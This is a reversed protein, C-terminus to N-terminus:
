NNILQYSNKNSEIWTRVSELAAEYSNVNLEGTPSLGVPFDIIHPSIFEILRYACNIQVENDPDTSLCNLDKKQIEEFLYDYIIKNNIYILDPILRFVVEDSLGLRRVSEVCYKAKTEDGWRALVLNISWIDSSNMKKDQLGLELYPILQILEVKGVLKILDSFHPPHQVVISTIFNRSRIDFWEMDFEELYNIVAYVNGADADSLGSSCLVSVGKQKAKLDTEKIISKKLIQYVLGRVRSNDYSLYLNVADVIELTGGKSTFDYIEDYVVKGSLFNNVIADLNSTSQSFVRISTFPISLLIFFTLLLKPYLKDM